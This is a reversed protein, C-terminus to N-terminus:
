MSFGPDLLVLCVFGVPPNLHMLLTADPQEHRSSSMATFYSSRSIVVNANMLSSRFVFPGRNPKLLSLTVNRYGYILTDVILSIKYEKIYSKILPSHKESKMYKLIHIISTFNAAPENNTIRYEIDLRSSATPQINLNIKFDYCFIINSLMLLTIKITSPAFFYM